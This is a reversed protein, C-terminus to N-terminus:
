RKKRSRFLGNKSGSVSRIDPDDLGCYSPVAKALVKKQEIGFIHREREKGQQEMVRTIHKPAGNLIIQVTM